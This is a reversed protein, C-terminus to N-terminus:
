WGLKSESSREQAFPVFWNQPALICGDDDGFAPMDHLMLVDEDQFLLTRMTQVGEADHVSAPLRDRTGHERLSTCDHNSLAEHLAYEEATCNPYPM